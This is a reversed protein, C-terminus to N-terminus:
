SGTPFADRVAALWFSGQGCAIRTADAVWLRNPRDATFVREVLDPTPAARPDQRTSGLWWRKRPFAGQLGAGRMVREVRKRGVAIGRRALM